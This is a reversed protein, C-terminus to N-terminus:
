PGAGVDPVHCLDVPELCGPFRHFRRVGSAGVPIPRRRASALPQPPNVVMVQPIYFLVIAALWFVVHSAGLKASIGFNGLGVVFLIQALILDRLGLERKLGPTVSPSPM